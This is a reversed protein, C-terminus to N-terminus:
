KSLAEVRRTVADLRASLQAIEEKRPVRMSKLAQHVTEELRKEVDKKQGALKESLDRVMKKGEEGSLGALGQLKAFLKATEEEAGTVTQLAQSWLQQFAEAVSKKDKPTSDM